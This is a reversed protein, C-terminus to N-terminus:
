FNSCNIFFLVKTNLDIAANVILKLEEYAKLVASWNVRKNRSSVSYIWNVTRFANCGSLETRFPIVTVRLHWHKRVLALTQKRKRLTYLTENKQKKLNERYNKFCDFNRAKKLSEKRKKWLGTGRKKWLKSKLFM